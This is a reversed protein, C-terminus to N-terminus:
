FTEFPPQCLQCLLREGCCQQFAYQHSKIVRNIRNIGTEFEPTLAPREIYTQMGPQRRVGGPELVLLPHVLVRGEAKM